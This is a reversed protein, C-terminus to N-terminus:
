RVEGPNTVVKVARKKRLAALTDDFQAARWPTLVAERASVETQPDDKSAPELVEVVFVFHYGFRSAFLPVFGPETHPRVREVWEQAWAPEACSGDDNRQGCADLDFAKTEVRLAVGQDDKDEFRTLKAMLRCAQPDDTRLYRSMREAVPEIRARATEQWQPDKAKALLGDRDDDFGSPVAILQCLKYLQPRVHLPSALAKVLMPDDDPISAATHAPEFVDQMWMRALAGRRLFRARAETVLPPPDVLAEQEARAAAALLAVDEVHQAAEQEGLGDRQAVM